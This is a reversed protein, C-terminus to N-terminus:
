KETRAPTMTRKSTMAEHQQEPRTGEVYAVCTGQLDVASHVLDGCGGTTDRRTTYSAARSAMPKVCHATPSTAAARRRLRLNNFGVVVFSLVIVSVM